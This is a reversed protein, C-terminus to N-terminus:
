NDTFVVTVTVSGANDTVPLAVLSALDYEQLLVPATVSGDDEILVQVGDLSPHYLWYLHSGSDASDGPSRDIGTAETLGLPAEVHATAQISASGQTILNGAPHAASALLVPSLLCAIFGRVTRSVM